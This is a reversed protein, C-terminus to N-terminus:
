IVILHAGRSTHRVEPLGQQHPVQKYQKGKDKTSGKPRGGGRKKSARADQGSDGSQAEEDDEDSGGGGGGSYSGDSGM